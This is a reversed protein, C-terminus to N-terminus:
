ILESYTLQYADPSDFIINKLLLRIIFLLHSEFSVVVACTRLTRPMEINLSESIANGPTKLFQKGDGVGHQKTMFCAPSSVIGDFHGLHEM